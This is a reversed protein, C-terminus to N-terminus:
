VFHAICAWDRLLIFGRCFGQQLAGLMGTATRLLQFSLGFLILVHLRRLIEGDVKGVAPLRLVL